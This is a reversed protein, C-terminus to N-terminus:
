CVRRMWFSAPWSRDTQGPRYSPFARALTHPHRLHMYRGAWVVEFARNYALFAELVYQESWFWRNQRVWSEPYERPIFIDHVHVFVGARLRPLIELFEYQVDSGIKLVHSSDIFLIDNEGLTEFLAAGVEQVPKGILQMSGSGIGRVVRSPYPDISILACESAGERCNREIAQAMLVTSFGSGIEIIRSPRVSRILCYLIEADVEEFTNNRLYFRTHPRAQEPFMEYEARFRGAFEEVLEIQRRDDIDIGAPMRERGFIGATLDRTDPVPEYFHNVTVHFGRDQWLDFYRKDRMLAAPLLRATVGALADKVCRKFGLGTM